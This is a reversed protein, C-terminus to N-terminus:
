KIGTMYRELVAYDDRPIESINEVDLIRWGGKESFTDFTDAETGNGFYDKFYEHVKEPAKSEESEFVAYDTYDAEGDHTTYRVIFCKNKEEYYTGKYITDSYEYAECGCDECKLTYKIGNDLTESTGYELNESNCKPCNGNCEKVLEAM